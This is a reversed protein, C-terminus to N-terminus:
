GKFAVIRRMVLCGFTMMILGLIILKHGTSTFYLPRMYRRNIVTIALAMFFPLGLLVYASARGMATLGKIKRAFQQRNRVTDAVMDILGALSGGVQRQITVSTIVFDFNPSGVRVAMEALATEMPRGLRAETLVRNLEKSAPPRGEDAVTKLAQRFSHGAKLTAALAVLLDPLQEEFAKERRKAKMHLWGLPVAAGALLGLFAIFASHLLLMPVILGVLAGGAIIYVFEVTRMPVDARELMRQLKTWLRASSFLDETAAFVSAVLSSGKEQKKRKRPADGLHPAIKRQLRGGYAASVIFGVALLVVLGVGIAIALTGLASDLIESPLLRSTSPGSSSEGALELTQTATGGDAAVALRAHEGPRLATAYDLQWTRRLAAAVAAYAGRLERTTHAGVYSGGTARALDRLPGPSFQPGEIGIVYVTVGAARAERAAAAASSSSGTDHGDTLLVLARGTGLEGALMHAALTAGDWLTTGSRSDVHLGRLANAADGASPSFDAYPVARHGFAVVAIQDSPRKATVFARAADVADALPRRAMSQSRDIALVVSKTAGLNTAQLGSVPLGAERLTPPRSVPKGTIVTVRIDPYSGTDINHITVGAAAPAAAVCAAAVALALIRLPRRM